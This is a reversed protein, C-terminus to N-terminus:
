DEPRKDGPRPKSGSQLADMERDLLDLRDNLENLKAQEAQLQMTMQAERERQQQEMQSQRQLLDRFDKAQRELNARNIPDAEQGLQTEIAKLHDAIQSQSSRLTNAQDRIAELLTTLRNIRDQQQRMRELAVQARYTNAIAQRLELRLQTVERLLAQLLQADDAAAPAGSTTARTRPSRMSAM